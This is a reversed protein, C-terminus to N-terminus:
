ARGQWPTRVATAAGEWSCDSEQFCILTVLFMENKFSPEAHSDHMFLQFGLLVGYSTWYAHPVRKALSAMRHEIPLHSASERPRWVINLLCTPLAKGLVDYSTWYALPFRKALSAM